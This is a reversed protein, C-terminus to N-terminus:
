HNRGPSSSQGRGIRRAMGAFDNRGRLGTPPISVLIGVRADRRAALYHSATLAMLHATTQPGSALLRGFRTKAAFDADHHLPNLDGVAGAFASTEGPTLSLRASFREHPQAYTM